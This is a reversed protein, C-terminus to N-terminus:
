KDELVIDKGTAADHEVTVTKPVIEDTIYKGKLWAAIAEGIDNTNAPKPQEWHVVRIDNTSGFYDAVTRAIEVALQKHEAYNLLDGPYDLQAFKAYFLAADETIEFGHNENKCIRIKMGPSRIDRPPDNRAIDAYTVIVAVAALIVTMSKKM